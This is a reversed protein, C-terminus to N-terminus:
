EKKNGSQAYRVTVGLIRRLPPQGLASFRAETFTTYTFYLIRRVAGSKRNGTADTYPEVIRRSMLLDSQESSMRIPDTANRKTGISVGDSTSAIIIGDAQPVGMRSFELLCESSMRFPDFGKRKTGISVGDSAPTPVIGDPQPVSMGSFVLSCKVPM